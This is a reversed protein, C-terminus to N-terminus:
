PAGPPIFPLGSGPGHEIIRLLGDTDLHKDIAHALRDLMADRRASFGPSGESPHWDVHAQAAVEALWARRFGDNEFTGHWTSGWVALHRFGDLFPEAENAKPDEADLVAV